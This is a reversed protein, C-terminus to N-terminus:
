YKYSKGNKGKACFSCPIYRKIENTGKCLHCSPNLGLCSCEELVLVKGKDSCFDCKYYRMATFDYSNDIAKDLTNTTPVKPTDRKVSVEPELNVVAPVRKIYTVTM